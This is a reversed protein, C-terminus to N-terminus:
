DYREKEILEVKDWGHWKIRNRAEALMAATLDLGIIKGKPGVAEQLFPFNLGTGCALDLVTSGPRLHLARVAKRRWTDNVGWVKFCPMTLDYIGAAKSYKQRVVETDFM